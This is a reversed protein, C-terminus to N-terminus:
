GGCGVEELGWLRRGNAGNSPHGWGVEGAFAPLGVGGRRVVCRWLPTRPGFGANVGCLGFTVVTASKRTVRWESPPRARAVLMVLVALALVVGLSLCLM